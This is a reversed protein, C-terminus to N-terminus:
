PIYLGYHVLTPQSSLSSTRMPTSFGWFKLLVQSKYWCWKVMAPLELQLSAGGIENGAPLPTRVVATSKCIQSSSSENSCTHVDQCGLAAM